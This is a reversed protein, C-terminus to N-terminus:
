ADVKERRPGVPFPVFKVPASVSYARRAHCECYSLGQIKTQGCFHFDPAQPDGIPWRCDHNELQQLTKRESVPIVIEEAPPVYSDNAALMERLVPNGKKARDERRKNRALSERRTRIRHVISQEDQGTKGKRTPLELRNVKGIISNRTYGTGYKRNIEHACVSASKGKFWLEKLMEVHPDIWSGNM